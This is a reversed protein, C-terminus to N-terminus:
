CGMSGRSSIMNEILMPSVPIYRTLYAGNKQQIGAAATNVVLMSYIRESIQKIFTSNM